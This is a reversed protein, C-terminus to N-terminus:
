FGSSLADVVLNTLAESVAGSTLVAYLVGAFAVATITCFAYESTTMGADDGVPRPLPRTPAFM